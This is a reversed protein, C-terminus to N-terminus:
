MWGKSGHTWNEVPGPAWGRSKALPSLVGWGIVAGLFMHLTTAPGMIIGQGVYAPSPNLKWLWKRALPLGFIPISHIQPVFYSFITKFM